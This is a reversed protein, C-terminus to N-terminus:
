DNELLVHFVPHVHRTATTVSKQPGDPREVLRIVQVWPGVAALDIPNDGADRWTGDEDEAVIVLRPEKADPRLKPGVIKLRTALRM